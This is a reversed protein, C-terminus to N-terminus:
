QRPITTFTGQPCELISIICLKRNAVFTVWCAPVPYRLPSVECYRTVYKKVNQQKFCFGECKVYNCQRKSSVKSAKRTTAFHPDGFMTELKQAKAVLVTAGARENNKASDTAAKPGCLNRAPEAGALKLAAERRSVSIVTSRRRVIGEVLLADPERTETRATQGGPSM